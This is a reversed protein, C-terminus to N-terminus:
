QENRLKAIEEVTLTKTAGRPRGATKKAATKKAVAKKTAAKRAPRGQAPESREGDKMLEEIPEGHEECLDREVTRGGETLTYRRVPHDM